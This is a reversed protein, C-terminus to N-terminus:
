LQERNHIHRDFQNNVHGSMVHGGYMLTGAILQERLEQQEDGTAADVEGKLDLLMAQYM